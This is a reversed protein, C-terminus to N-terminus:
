QWSSQRPPSIQKWRLKGDTGKECKDVSRDSNVRTQSKRGCEGGPCGTLLGLALAGAAVTAILRRM